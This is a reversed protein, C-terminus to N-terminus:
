NFYIKLTNLLLIILIFLFSILHRSVKSLLQHKIPILANYHNNGIYALALPPLIRNPLSPVYNKLQSWSAEHDQRYILIDRNLIETMATLEQHGGWFVNPQRLRNVYAALDEDVEDIVDFFLIPNAIMYDACDQRLKLNNRDHGFPCTDCVTTAISISNFLCNGDPAALIYEYGICNLHDVFRKLALDRVNRSNLAM